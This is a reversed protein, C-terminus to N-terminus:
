SDLLYEFAFTTKLPDRVALPHLLNHLTEETERRVFRGWLSQQAQHMSLTADLVAQEIMPVLCQTFIPAAHSYPLRCLHQCQSVIQHDPQHQPPADLIHRFRASVKGCKHIRSDLQDQTTRSVQCGQWIDSSQQVLYLM